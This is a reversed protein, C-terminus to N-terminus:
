QATHLITKLPWVIEFSIYVHCILRKDLYLISIAKQKNM